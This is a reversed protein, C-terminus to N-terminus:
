FIGCNCICFLIVNSKQMKGKVSEKKCQLWCDFGDQHRDKIMGGHGPGDIQGDSLGCVDWKSLHFHRACTNGCKAM